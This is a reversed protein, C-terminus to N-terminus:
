PVRELFTDIAAEVKERWQEEGFRLPDQWHELADQENWSTRRERELLVGPLYDPEDPLFLEGAPIPVFITMRGPQENIEKKQNNGISLIVSFTLLAAFVVTCIVALQRKQVATLKHFFDQIFHIFKEM